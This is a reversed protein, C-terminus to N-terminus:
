LLPFSIKTIKRYYVQYYLVRKSPCDNNGRWKEKPDDYFRCFYVTPDAFGSTRKGVSLSLDSWLIFREIPYWNPDCFVQIVPNEKMYALEENNLGPQIGDKNLYYRHELMNDFEPQYIKLSNMGRNLEDM